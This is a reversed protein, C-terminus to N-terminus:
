IFTIGMLNKLIAMNKKETTTNVKILLIIIILVNIQLFMTKMDKKQIDENRKLLHITKQGKLNHKINIHM